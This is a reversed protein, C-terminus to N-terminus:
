AWRGYRRGITRARDLEAVLEGFPPLLGGLALILFAGSFGVRAAAAYREPPSLLQEEQLVREIPRCYEKIKSVLGGLQFLEAPAHSITFHHFVREELDSLV